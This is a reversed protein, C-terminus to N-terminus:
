ARISEPPPHTQLRPHAPHSLLPAHTLPPAPRPPPRYIESHARNKTFLPRATACAPTTYEGGMFVPHLSRFDLREDHDPSSKTTFANLPDLDGAKLLDEVM